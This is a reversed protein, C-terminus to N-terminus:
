TMFDCPIPTRLTLAQRPMPQLRGHARIATGPRTSTSVMGDANFDVAASRASVENITIGASASATADDLLYGQAPASMSTLAPLVALLVLSRLSSPPWTSHGM